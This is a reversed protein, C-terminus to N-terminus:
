WLDGPTPTTIPEGECELEDYAPSPPGRIVDCSKQPDALLECDM